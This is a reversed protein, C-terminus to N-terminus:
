FSHAKLTAIQAELEAARATDEEEFAESLEDSLCDILEEKIEECEDQQYTEGNVEVWPEGDAYDNVGCRFDTPYQEELVAAPDMYKFPGGVKEFSYCERIMERFHEERDVTELNDAIRQDLEAIIDKM